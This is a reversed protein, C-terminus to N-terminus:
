KRFFRLVINLLLTLVVSAVICSVVPFHFSTNKGRYNIDGPLNGLWPVKPAVLLVLGVAAILGGAILLMMGMSKVFENELLTQSCPVM